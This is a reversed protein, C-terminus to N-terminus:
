KSKKPPRMMLPAAATSSSPPMSSKPSPNPKTFAHQLKADSEKARQAYMNPHLSVNPMSTVQPLSRLSGSVSPFAVLPSSSVNRRDFGGVEDENTGSFRHTELPMTEALLLEMACGQSRSTPYGGRDHDEFHRDVNSDESDDSSQTRAEGHSFSKESQDNPHVPASDSSLLTEAHGVPDPRRITALGDDEVLTLADCARYLVEMTEEDSYTATGNNRLIDRWDDDHTMVVEADPCKRLVYDNIVQSPRFLQKTPAIDTIGVDNGVDGGGGGYQQEGVHQTGGGSGGGGSFGLMWSISFGQPGYPICDKNHRGLRSDVIQSIEVDKFFKGWISTGLSISYGHIFVTQNLPTAPSVPGYSKTRAPGAATWRYKYNSSDPSATPTPEFALRFTSQASLDQFSARGWVLAKEWGTVLYLSGNTLRRGRAGNVYKYWSEANERAYRLMNELNVLEEVRSGLPITLVAGQPGRCHFVFSEMAPFDVPPPQSDVKELSSGTSVYDEASYGLSTMDASVYRPTLPHFNEPTGIANVPDDVPLYINFFFDFGGGPTVRGVDGISVGHKQYEQPLNEGPGPLYLPFGRGCRLLQSCYSESDSYVALQRSPLVQNRSIAPGEPIGPAGASSM